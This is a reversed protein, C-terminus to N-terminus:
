KEFIVQAFAMDGPMPPSIKRVTVKTHKIFPFQEFAATHITQAIKELTHIDSKFTNQILTNLITYDVFRGNEDSVETQIDIDVEFRNGLILEQPYLGLPAFIKVKHLSITFM